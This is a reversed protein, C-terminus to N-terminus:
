LAADLFAGGVQMITVLAADLFDSEPDSAYLVQVPYQRGQVYVARTGPFFDIFRQAELTASMVILKMSSPPPSPSSLAADLEREGHGDSDGRSAAAAAGAVAAASGHENCHESSERAGGVEEGRGDMGKRRKGGRGDADELMRAEGETRENNRSGNMKSESSTHAGGGTGRRSRKRRREQIQKLLGLLVDTNVTREHAEDVIVISYKSLMPDLM